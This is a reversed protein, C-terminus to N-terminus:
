RRCVATYRIIHCRTSKTQTTRTDPPERCRLDLPWCSIVHRRSYYENSSTAIPGLRDGILLVANSPFPLVAQGPMDQRSSAPSHRVKQGRVRLLLFDPRPYSKTQPVRRWILRSVRSLAVPPKSSDRNLLWRRSSWVWQRLCNNNVSVKSIFGSPVWISYMRLRDLRRVIVHPRLPNILRGVPLISYGNCSVPWVRSAPESPVLNLPDGGEGGSVPLLRPARIFCRRRMPRCASGAALRRTRLTLNSLTILLHSM